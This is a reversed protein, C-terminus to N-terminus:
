GIIEKEFELGNKVIENFCQSTDVSQVFSIYCSDDVSVKGTSFSDKSDEDHLECISATQGQSLTPSGKVEGSKIQMSNNLVKKWKRRWKENDKISITKRETKGSLMFETTHCLKDEMSILRNELLPKLLISRLYGRKHKTLKRKKSRRVEFLISLSKDIFLLDM